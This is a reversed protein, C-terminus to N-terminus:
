IIDHRDAYYSDSFRILEDIGVPEQFAMLM